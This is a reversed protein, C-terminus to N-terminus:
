ENNLRKNRATEIQKIIPLLDSEDKKGEDTWIELLLDKIRNFCGLKYIKM